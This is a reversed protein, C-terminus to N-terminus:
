SARDAACEGAAALAPRFRGDEDFVLAGGSLDLETMDRILRYARQQPDLSVGDPRTQIGSVLRGDLRRGDDDITAVLIPAYGKAGEM